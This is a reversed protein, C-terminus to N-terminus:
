CGDRLLKMAIQGTVVIYWPYSVVDLFLRLFVLRRQKMWKRNSANAGYQEVYMARQADTVHWDTSTIWFQSVQASKQHGPGTDSKVFFTFTTGDYGTCTTPSRCPKAGAVKRYVM